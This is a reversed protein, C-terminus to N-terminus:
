GDEEKLQYNIVSICLILIAVIEAILRLLVNPMIINLIGVFLTICILLSTMLSRSVVTEGVEIYFSFVVAIQFFLLNLIWLELNGFSFDVVVKGFYVLSSVLYMYVFHAVLSSPKYNLNINFKSETNYLEFCKIGIGCLLINIFLYFSLSLNLVTILITAILWIGYIQVVERNRMLMLNNKINATKLTFRNLLIPLYRPRDAYSIPVYSILYVIVIPTLAIFGLKLLSISQINHVLNITISSKAIASFSSKLGTYYVTIYCLILGIYATIIALNYNVKTMILVRVLSNYAIHVLCFVLCYIFWNIVIIALLERNTFTNYLAMGSQILMIAFQIISGLLFQLFYTARGIDKSSIHNLKFFYRLKFPISISMIAFIYSFITTNISSLLLLSFVVYIQESSLKHDSAPMIFFTYTSLFLIVGVILALKKRNLNHVLYYCSECM